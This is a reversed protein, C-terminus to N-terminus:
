ESACIWSNYAASMSDYRCEPRLTLGAQHNGPNLTMDVTIGLNNNRKLLDISLCKPNKAYVHVLVLNIVRRKLEELRLNPFFYLMIAKRKRKNQREESVPVVM